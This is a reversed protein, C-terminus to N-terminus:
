LCNYWFLFFYEVEEEFDMDNVKVISGITVVNSDIKSEDNLLIYDSGVESITGTFIKNKWEISNSYSTYLSVNKGINLALFNQLSELNNTTGRMNQNSISGGMPDPIIQRYNTYTYNNNM